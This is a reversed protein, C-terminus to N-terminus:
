GGRPSEMAVLMSSRGEPPMAAAPQDAPTPGSTKRHRSLARMWRWTLVTAGCLISVFGGVGVALVAGLHLAGGKVGAQASLSRNHQLSFFPCLRSVSCPHPFM